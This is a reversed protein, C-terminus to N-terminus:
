VSADYASRADEVRALHEDSWRVLAAFVPSLSRGLESIEYEVRPPIEAHHERTILGDRELQRLRQTLVKATIAPLRRHLETFRQRGHERLAWLIPTTWRSFVLDVVPSVPCADEYM